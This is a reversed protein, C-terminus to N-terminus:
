EKVMPIKLDITKANNSIQVIYTGPKLSSMDVSIHSSGPVISVENSLVVKGAIDVVSLTAIASLQGTIDIQAIGTVPNPYSHVTIGSGSASNIGSNSNYQRNELGQGGSPEPAPPAYHCEPTQNNTVPSVDPTPFASGITITFGNSPSLTSNGPQITTTSTPLQCVLPGVAANVFMIDGQTGYAAGSIYPAAYPTFFSNSCIGGYSATDNQQMLNIFCTPSPTTTFTQAVEYLLVDAPKAGGSSFSGFFNVSAMLGPGTYNSPDSAVITLDTPYLFTESSFPPNSPPVILPATFAPIGGPLTVELFLPTTNGQYGSVFITPNGSTTYGGEDEVAGTAAVDTTETYVSPSPPATLGYAQAWVTIQSHTSLRTAVVYYNTNSHSEVIRPKLFGISNPPLIFYNNADTCTVANIITTSNLLTICPNTSGSINDLSVATISGTNPAGEHNFLLDTVGTATHSTPFNWTQMWLLGGGTDLVMVFDNSSGSAGSSAFGGVAIDGTNSGGQDMAIAYGTLTSNFGGSAPFGYKKCWIVNGAATVEYVMTVDLENNSPSHDRGHCLILYNGNWAQITKEVVMNRKLPLASIKNLAQSMGYHPILLLLGLLQIAIVKSLHKKMKGSSTKDSCYGLGNSAHPATTQGKPRATAFTNFVTKM